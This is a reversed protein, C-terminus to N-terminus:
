FDESVERARKLAPSKKLEEITQIV